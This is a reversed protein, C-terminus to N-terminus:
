CPHVLGAASIVDLTHTLFILHGAGEVVVPEVGAFDSWDKVGDAMHALNDERGTVVAYPLDPLRPPHISQGYARWELLQGEYGKSIASKQQRVHMEMLADQKLFELDVPNPELVMRVGMRWSDDTQSAALSEMMLASAELPLAAVQAIYGGDHEPEIEFARPSVFTAGSFRHPHTAIVRALDFNGGSTALGHVKDFGLHDLLSITDSMIAAQRDGIAPDTLGVGPREVIILRIGYDNLQRATPEWVWRGGFSSHMKLVVRGNPDGCDSFCVRRGDETLFFNTMRRHLAQCPNEFEQLTGAMLNLEGVLVALDTQKNLETREYIAKIHDRVTYVRIGMNDAIEAASLGESVMQAIEAQRATLGLMRQLIAPDGASNPKKISPFVLRLKPQDAGYQRTKRLIANQRKQDKMIFSVFLAENEDDPFIRDGWNAVAQWSLPATLDEHGTMHVKHTNELLQDWEQGNEDILGNQMCLQVNPLEVRTSSQRSVAIQRARAIHQALGNQEDEFDALAAYAATFSKGFRFDLALAYAADILADVRRGM